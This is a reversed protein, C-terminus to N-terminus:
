VNARQSDRFEPLPDVAIATHQEGIDPSLGPGAGGPHAGRSRGHGNTLSPIQEPATFNAAM